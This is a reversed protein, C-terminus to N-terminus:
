PGGARGRTARRGAARRRLQELGEAEGLGRPPLHLGVGAAHPAADVDRGAQHRDGLDEEEVLGGGAEVRAAPVLDPLQHAADRGLPGGHQEGGLVEVLGVPERLAQGHDVVAADDGLAGAALELGRDARARQM